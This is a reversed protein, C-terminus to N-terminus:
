VFTLILLKNIMLCECCMTYKILSKWLGSVYQTESYMNDKLIEGQLINGSM